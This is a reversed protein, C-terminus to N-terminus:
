IMVRVEFANIKTRNASEEADGPASFLESKGENKLRGFKSDMCVRLDMKKLVSKLTNQRHKHLELGMISQVKFRVM